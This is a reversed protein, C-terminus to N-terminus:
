RAPAPPEHLRPSPHAGLAGRRAHLGEVGNVAIVAYHDPGRPDSGWQSNPPYGNAWACCPPPIGVPAPQDDDAFAGSVLVTLAAIVSACIVGVARMLCPRSTM